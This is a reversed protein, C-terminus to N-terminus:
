ELDMDLYNNIWLISINHAFLLTFFIIKLPHGLFVIQFFILNKQGDLIMWFYMRLRNQATCNKIQVKIELIDAFIM